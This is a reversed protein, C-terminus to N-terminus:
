EIKRFRGGQDSLQRALSADRQLAQERLSKRYDDAIKRMGDDAVGLIQVALVAANIAGDIAVTAVPVGPPMQVTSLLSDMGNLASSGVPIGIVPRTTKAAVAGALHAAGGAAAIFVKADSKAVLDAVDEPTRHASLARVRHHIGFLSLHDSAPKVREWDSTSGIVIDILM